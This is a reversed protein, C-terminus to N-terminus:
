GGGRGLPHPTHTTVPNMGFVWYGYAGLAAATIDGLSDLTWLGPSLTYFFITEPDFFFEILEWGIAAGGLLLALQRLAPRGTRCAPRGTRGAEGSSWRPSCALWRSWWEHVAAILMGGALHAVKDLQIASIFLLEERSAFWRIYAVFAWLGLSLFLLFLQKRTSLVSM